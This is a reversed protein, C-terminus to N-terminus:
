PRLRKPPLFGEGNEELNELDRLAQLHGASFELELSKNSQLSRQSRSELRELLRETLKVAAPPALATALRDLGGLEGKKSPRIAKRRVPVEERQELVSWRPSRVLDSIEIRVSAEEAFLASQKTGSPLALALSVGLSGSLRTGRFGCGM